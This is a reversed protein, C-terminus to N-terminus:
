RSIRGTYHGCPQVARQRFSAQHGDRAQRVDRSDAHVLDAIGSVGPPVRIEEPQFVEVSVYRRGSDGPLDGAGRDVVIVGVAVQRELAVPCQPLGRGLMDAGHGAGPVVGPRLADAHGAAEVADEVDQECGDFGPLFHDDAVRDIGPQDVADPQRAADRAV